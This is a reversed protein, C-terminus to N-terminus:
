RVKTPLPLLSRFRTVSRRKPTRRKADSQLEVQESIALADDVEIGPLPRHEGVQHARAATARRPHQRDEQLDALSQL